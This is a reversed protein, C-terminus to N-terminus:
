FFTWYKMNLPKFLWFLLRKPCSIAKGTLLCAFLWQSPWVPLSMQTIFCPFSNICCTPRCRASHMKLNVFLLRTITVLLYEFHALHLLTKKMLQNFSSLFKLYWSHKHTKCWFVKVCHKMYFSGTFKRLLIVNLYKSWKGLGGPWEREWTKIQEQWNM